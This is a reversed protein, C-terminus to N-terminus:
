NFVESLLTKHICTDFDFVILSVKAIDSSPNSVWQDYLVFSETFSGRYTFRFLGHIPKKLEIVVEYM